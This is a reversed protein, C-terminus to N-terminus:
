ELTLSQSGKEKGGGKAWGDWRRVEGGGRRGREGKRKGTCEVHGKEVDRSSLDARWVVPDGDGGVGGEGDVFLGDHDVGDEVFVAGGGGRLM